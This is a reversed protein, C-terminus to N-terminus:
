DFEIVLASFGGPLAGLSSIPGRKAQHRGNENGGDHEAETRSDVQGAVDAAADARDQLRHLPQRIAVQGDFNRVLAFASFYAPNSTRKLDELLREDGLLRGVIRGAGIRRDVRRVSLADARSGAM